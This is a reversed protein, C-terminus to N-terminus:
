GTQYKLVYWMALGRCVVTSILILETAILRFRAMVLPVGIGLFTAIGCTAVLKVSEKGYIIRYLPLFTLMFIIYCIYMKAREYVVKRHQEVFKKNLEGDKLSLTTYRIPSEAM